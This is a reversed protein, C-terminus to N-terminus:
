GQVRELLEEVFSKYSQLAEQDNKTRDVIGQISFEKIRTKRRIVTEFVIGKYQEQIDDVLAKDISARADHISTLIGAVRLDPNVFPLIGDRLFEMFRDVASHSFPESQFMVVVYDSAGLGNSTQEGLNPPLDILIFDYSDMVPELAKKLLLSPSISGKYETFIYKSLTSLLDEAPVLHLSDTIPVIYPRVDSEHIAELITAGRFEYVDRQTLLQTLNGQSDFDVALVKYDRSLLYGTLATATTKGVGGKQLAFSIVKSVTM